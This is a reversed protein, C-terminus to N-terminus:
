IGERARKLTSVLTLTKQLKQLVQLYGPVNCVIYMNELYKKKRVHVLSATINRWKEQTGLTVAM